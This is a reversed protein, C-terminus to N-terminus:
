KKKKGKNCNKTCYVYFISGDPNKVGVGEFDQGPVLPYGYLARPVFPTTPPFLVPDLTPLTYAPSVTVPAGDAGVPAVPAFTPFTFPAFTALTPFLTALTPPVSPAIAPQAPVFVGPGSPAAPQAAPVVSEASKPEPNVLLSQNPVKAERNRADEQAIGHVRNRRISLRKLGANSRQCYISLPLALLLSFKLVSAFLM